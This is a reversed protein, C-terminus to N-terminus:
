AERAKLMADAEAYRLYARYEVLRGVTPTTEGLLTLTEMTANWPIDITAAFYDRVSIGPEPQYIMSNRIQEDCPFAPGGDKIEGM